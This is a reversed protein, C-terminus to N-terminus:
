KENTTVIINENFSDMLKKLDEQPLQANKDAKLVMTDPPTVSSSSKVLGDRHGALYGDKYGKLYDDAHKGYFELKQDTANIYSLNKKNVVFSRGVPFFDKEFCPLSKAMIEKIKGIQMMVLIYEGNILFIGSKNGSARIYCIESCDFRRMERTNRLILYKKEM